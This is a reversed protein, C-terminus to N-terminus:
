DASVAANAGGRHYAVSQHDCGAAECASDSRYRRYRRRRSDNRPTARALDEVYVVELRNVQVKDPIRAWLWSARALALLIQFFSNQAQGGFDRGALTWDPNTAHGNACSAASRSSSPHHWDSLKLGM